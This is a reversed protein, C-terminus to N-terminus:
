GEHLIHKDILFFLTKRRDDRRSNFASMSNIENKLEKVRTELEYKSPM